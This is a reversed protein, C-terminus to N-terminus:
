FLIFNYCFYPYFKGIKNNNNQTHTSLLHHTLPPFRNCLRCILHPQLFAIVCFGSMDLLHFLLVILVLHHAPHVALHRSCLYTFHNPICLIETFMTYFDLVVTMLKLPFMQFILACLILILRLCVLHHLHLRSLHYTFHITTTWIKIFM